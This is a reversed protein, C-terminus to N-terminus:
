FEGKQIYSRNGFFILVSIIMCFRLFSQKKESVKLNALERELFIFVYIYILIRFFSSGFLALSLNQGDNKTKKIINKVERGM